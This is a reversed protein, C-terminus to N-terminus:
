RKTSWRRPNCRTNVDNPEFVDKLSPIFNLISTVLGTTAPHAASWEECPLTRLPVLIRLLLHIEWALTYTPHTTNRLTRSPHRVTVIKALGQVTDLGYFLGELAVTLPSVNIVYHENLASLCRPM